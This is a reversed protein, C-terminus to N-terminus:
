EEMPEIIQYGSVTRPARSKNRYYIWFKWGVFGMLSLLGLFFGWVLLQHHGIIRDWFTPLYPELVMDLSLIGGMFSVLDAQARLHHHDNRPLVRDSAVSPIVRPSARGFNIIRASDHLGNTGRAGKIGVLWRAQFRNKPHDEHEGDPEQRDRNSQSTSSSRFSVDGYDSEGGEQRSLMTHYIMGDSIYLPKFPEPEPTPLGGSNSNGRLPLSPYTPIIHQRVLSDLRLKDELYYTLNIKTFAEDSPCLITFGRILDIAPRRRHDPNSSSVNSPSGPNLIWSLNSSQVLELMTSAKAGLMLKRIGINVGSPLEVQNVFQMSGNEVLVDKKNIVESDKSEGNLAVGGVTPGHITINNSALKTIYLETGELTPYRQSSGLRIEDQYLVQVIAHYKLVQSLDAKSRELLLYDMILGLDAFARNTPMLYTLEPISKFEDDLKASFISAVATSFRINSLALQLLDSPPPVIQSLIYILTNGVQIPDGGVVNVGGFGILPSRKTKSDSLGKGDSESVSVPMRQKSRSQSRFHLETALLMGDTLDDISYKGEIVHYRLSRELSGPEDSTLHHDSNLERSQPDFWRQLQARNSPPPPISRLADDRVALITYSKDEFRNNLYTSTLNALRFLSVFKTCNLALLYKEADLKLPNDRDSILLNPIIHLVGNSALIDHRLTQSGNITFRTPDSGLGISVLKGDLTPLLFSHNPHRESEQRLLNSYGIGDPQLIHDASAQRFLKISDDSSLNSKLYALEISSLNKWADNHPAFVTLHPILELQNLLSDPLISAYTTLSPDSRILEELSPPLTLISEIPILTANSTIQFQNPPPLPIGHRGFGDVGIFTTQQRDIIRLKQPQHGLLASSSRSPDNFPEPFLSTPILLPYNSPLSSPLSSSNILHYLITQRLQLHLNDDFRDFSSSSSSSHHHSILSYNSLLQSSDIAQNTPAFLTLHNNQNLIPVLRSIQILHLLKSHNSSNSLLDILTMTRPHIPPQHDIFNNNTTTTIWDISLTSQVQTTRTSRRTMTMM